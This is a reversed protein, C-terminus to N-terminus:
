LYNYDKVVNTQGGKKHIKVWMLLLKEMLLM